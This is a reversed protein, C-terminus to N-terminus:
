LAPVTGRVHFHSYPDLPSAHLTDSVRYAAGGQFPTHAGKQSRSVNVGDAGILKYEWRWQSM